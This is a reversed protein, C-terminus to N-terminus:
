PLAEVLVDLDYTMTVGGVSAYATSYTISTGQDVRVVVTGNTTTSTTNTTATGGAKAVCAVGGDTWGIQVSLSSSTTAARTVRGYCSVQYLGPALTPTSIATAAISAAQASVSAAGVRGSTAGIAQTLSQFWRIWDINTRLAKKNLEPNADTPSSYIPPPAVVPM